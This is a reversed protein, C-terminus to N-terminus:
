RTEHEFDRRVPELLQWRATADIAGAFPSAQRLDNMRESDEGLADAVRDIGQELLDRWALAYSPAVTGEAMWRDTWADLIM